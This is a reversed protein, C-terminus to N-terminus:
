RRVRWAFGAGLRWDPAADNLGVGGYVDLELNEGFLRSLGGNAQRVSEAGETDVDTLVGEAFASWRGAIPFSLSASYNLVRAREDAADGTSPATWKLNLLLASRGFGRQASLIASPDANRTSTAGGTPLSVMPILALDMGLRRQTALQIKAGLEVDAASRERDGGANTSVLGTTAARLELRSTMGLRFVSNPLTLTSVDDGDLTRTEWGVGAEVQWFGRGVVQPPTSFSPREVVFAPASQALVTLPALLIGALLPLLTRQRTTM